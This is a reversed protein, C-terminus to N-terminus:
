RCKEDEQELMSPILEDTYISKIGNNLFGKANELDNVTHVLVTIGYADAIELIKPTALRARMTIYRINNNKCFRCYSPFAEEEGGWTQYLTYIITPFDYVEKVIDLMEDNYIQVIIRELLDESGTSRVTDLILTFQELAKEDRYKTDTVIYIDEHEKMLLLVDELTLPTYKGLIPTKKFIVETPVHEEDIGEQYGASWDHRCVMKGDSTLNFDVEFVRHGLEYNVEFAEKCNTYTLGDIAGMAHAIPYSVFDANVPSEKFNTLLIGIAIAIIGYVGGRLITNMNAYFLKMTGLRCKYSGVKINWRLRLIKKANLIAYLSLLVIISVGVLLEKLLRRSGWFLVKIDAPLLFLSDENIWYIIWTWIFSYIICIIGTKLTIRKM